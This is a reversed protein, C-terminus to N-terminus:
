PVRRILMLGCGWAKARGFGTALAPLFTGPDTVELTGTLDLIGHVVRGRGRPIRAVHYDEVNMARLAFGRTAGQRTMWATAATDALRMRHEARAEPAIDHLLEMVVDVRRSPRGQGTRQDRTANARLVFGLRDGPRLNPAFEKIEPPCFLDNALPPRASLTYFRGGGDARWLFDRQRDRADGFLTWILRHNADARADENAPDLLGSLARTPAYRNLTLRSFYLSM